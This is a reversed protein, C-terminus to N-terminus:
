HGNTEAQITALLDIMLDVDHYGDTDILVLLGTWDMRRGLRRWCHLAEREAQGLDPYSDDLAGPQIQKAAVM